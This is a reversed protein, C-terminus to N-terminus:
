RSGATGSLQTAWLKPSGDARLLGYYEAGQRWPQDFAEFVAFPINRSELCVLYARQWSDNAGPSGSTPMGTAAITVPRDVPARELVDRYAQMTAGCSEQPGVVEERLPDVLPFVWDGVGLLTPDDKYAEPRERVAVPKGTRRRLRDAAAVLAARTYRREGLGGWGVAYGDACRRLRAARRLEATDTPDAVGVIVRAIGYRKLFRCVPMLSEPTSETEVARVGIGALATADARLRKARPKWGPTPDFGRPAYVVLRGGGFLDPAPLTAQTAAAVLVFVGLM